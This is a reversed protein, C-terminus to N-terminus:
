ITLAEERAEKDVLLITELDSAPKFSHRLLLHELKSAIEKWSIQRSLFREVLIENAANLYCPSSGGQTLSQYALSLCRFKQLDPAFFQLASYKYFDFPPLLGPKREPYTLAYQIPFIMNPESAQALISGDVFEVFSHIVSQPHIVVEIQDLPIGFLFFAEILEFGKNMLTSSDITVKPGMTWTPHSLAQDVTISALEKEPIHLFPGGSATLVLRRVEGPLSGQLCQFIASHESDIPILRVQHKKALETIYAGAAVLVEKNALGITKGHSIATATPLIGSAGTMASIVFNATSLAAAECIGEMGGVVKTAVRKQLAQAQAKDFVAVIEPNFERIQAELLEINSKAALAKVPIGLHRAVKLANKGISGTSGLIALKKDMIIREILGQRLTFTLM